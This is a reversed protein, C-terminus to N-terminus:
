KGENLKIFFSGSYLAKRMRFIYFKININFNYTSKSNAELMFSYLTSCNTEQFTCPAANGDVIQNRQQFVGESHTKNLGPM